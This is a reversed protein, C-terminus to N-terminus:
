QPSSAGGVSEAAPWSTGLRLRTSSQWIASPLDIVVDGSYSGAHSLIYLLRSGRTAAVMRYGVAEHSPPTKSERGTPREVFGSAILRALAFTDTVPYLMRLYMSRVSLPSRPLPPMSKM